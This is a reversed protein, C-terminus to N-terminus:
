GGKGFAQEYTLGTAKLIKDIASKKIESAGSLYRLMTPYCQEMKCMLSLATINVENQNMWDRLGKYICRTEDITHFHGKRKYRVCQHVAQRSVGLKRAVEAYSMQDETLYKMVLNRDM